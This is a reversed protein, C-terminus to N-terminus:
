ETRSSVNISRSTSNVVLTWVEYRFGDMFPCFFFQSSRRAKVPM